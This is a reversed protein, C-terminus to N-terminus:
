ILMGIAGTIVIIIIGVFLMATPALLKSAAAEGKQLMTQKKLSWIEISQRALFSDLESGGREISQALAGTFKRVEAANSMRGFNYIADLEAMGNDIAVCSQRMLEYVAGERSEAISRWAQRVVMGSNILLAMTSVIEPLEEKCEEARTKLLSNMRDLFYYAFIVTAALMLIFIFTSNMIGALLFALTLFLHIVSLTQAWVVNAYYEAYKYDYLLKAQGILKERTKGKLVFTSNASWAFGVCYISKLPFDKSNLNEVMNNYKQGQVCKVLFLVAAISGFVLYVLQLAM